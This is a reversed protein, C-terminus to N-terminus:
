RHQVEKEIELLMADVQNEISRAKFQNMWKDIEVKRFRILKSQTGTSRQIAFYPLGDRMYEALATKKIGLYACVQGKDMYPERQVIIRSVFHAIQKALQSQAKM